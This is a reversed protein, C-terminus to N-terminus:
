GVQKIVGRANYTVTTYTGGAATAITIATSAKARLTYGISEYPGAGTANTIATLLTAGSLQTFAMTLVRPTNTEDTYACTVTFNHLTSTTVNINAGIEFTGDAAGVTYTAVTTAGTAGVTDAYGQVAALSWGATSVNNYTTMRSSMIGASFAWTGNVSGAGNTFVAQNAAGALALRMVGASGYWGDNSSIALAPSSNTGFGTTISTVTPTASYVPAVGVGNSVLVSGTAVGTPLANGGQASVWIANNTANIPQAVGSNSGFMLFPAQTQVRVGSAIALGIVFLVGFLARSLFPKLRM